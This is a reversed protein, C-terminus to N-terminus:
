VIKSKIMQKLNLNKDKIKFSSKSFLEIGEIIADEVGKTPKFGLSMIKSSDLRYSRPDNSKLIKIECDALKQIKKSIELISLNEFGANFIGEIKKNKHFFNYLSVMDDIHINPRIQKGGFVTIIKNKVAQYTLMNVSLDLRLRPSIGCVTAPRIMVVRFFKSFSEIVKETIMKQKNYDSIPFLPTDEKVKKKNSVGYVSGSSAYLFNKVKKKKCIDLLKFTALPGIEWSLKPNLDSCPDNSVSALHFVTKVGNLINENINRIDSKIIRLNKNKPLYNGFWQNDIVIVKCNRKILSHVLKTGIFGCGGTILVKEM